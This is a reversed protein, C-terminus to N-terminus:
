PIAGDDEDSSDSDSHPETTNSSPASSSVEEPRRVERQSLMTEPGSSFM